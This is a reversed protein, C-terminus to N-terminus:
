FSPCSITRYMKKKSSVRSSAKKPYKINYDFTINKQEKNQLNFYWTIIGDTESILSQDLNHVNIKIEDDDFFPPIQDLMKIKVENPHNNIITISIDAKSTISNGIMKNLNDNTIEKRHCQIENDKGLYVQLTDNNTVTNLFTKGLYTGHNYINTTASMLNYNNWSPINALLFAHNDLKPIVLFSFDSKIEFTKVDILYPKGNSLINRKSEIEYEETNTSVEVSKFSINSNNYNIDQKVSQSSNDDLTPINFGITPSATSLKINVNNWDTNTANFINAKFNLSLPTAVGNYNIDYVPAWGANPTIFSLLVETKIDKQSLVDVVIESVQKSSQSTLNRLKSELLNLNRNLSSKKKQLQFDEENLRLYRDHFFNAAKEIEDVKVGNSLGGISESKFLLEKEKRNADIQYDIISIEDNVKEISDKIKQAQNNDYKSQFNIQETVSLIKIDKNEIKIQTSNEIINPTLNTFIITNKGKKLPTNSSYKINASSSYITVGEIKKIAEIKNQATIQFFVSIIICLLSFHKM